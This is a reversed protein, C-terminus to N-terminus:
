GEKREEYGRLKRSAKQLKIHVMYTHTHGQECLFVLPPHVGLVREEGRGMLCPRMSNPALAALVLSEGDEDGM